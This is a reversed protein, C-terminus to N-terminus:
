APNGAVSNEIVPAVVVDEETIESVIFPCVKCSSPGKQLYWRCTPRIPCDPITESVPLHDLFQIVQEVVGCGKGNWQQCGSEICKNTFRFKQEAAIGDMSVKDLFAQDVPLTQPLIAVTGDEQRVGLLESGTKAKNSPCMIKKDASM